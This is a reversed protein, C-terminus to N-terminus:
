FEHGHEAKDGAPHGCDVRILNRRGFCRRHGAAAAIRASAFHAIARAFAAGVAITDTAIAFSTAAFTAIFGGCRGCGRNRRGGAAAPRIAIAINAVAVRM